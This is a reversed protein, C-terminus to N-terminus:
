VYISRSLQVVIIFHVLGDNCKLTFVEGCDESTCADQSMGLLLLNADSSTEDGEVCGAERWLVLGDDVAVGVDGVRGWGSEVGVVWGEWDVRLM